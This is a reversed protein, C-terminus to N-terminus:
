WTKEPPKSVKEKYKLTLLGERFGPELWERITPYRQFGEPVVM